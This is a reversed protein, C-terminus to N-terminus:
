DKIPNSMRRVVNEDMKVYALVRFNGSNLAEFETWMEAIKKVKRRYDAPKLATKFIRMLYRSSEFETDQDRIQRKLSSLIQTCLADDGLICYQLAQFLKSDVDTFFYQKLSFENRLENVKRAAGSYDRQYFRVMAVCRKMSVFHYVESPDIDLEKEIRDTYFQLHDVNGDVLYKMVKSRMFQVIFFHMVHKDMMVPLQQHIRQQYYDARVVNNTRVYYEFYLMDTIGKINQYFTDLPYKEFIQTMKQLVAEMELERAKLGESKDPV